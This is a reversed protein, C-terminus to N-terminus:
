IRLCTTSTVFRSFVGKALHKVPEFLKRVLESFVPDDSFMEPHEMATSAVDNGSKDPKPCFMQSKLNLGMPSFMFDKLMSAKTFNLEGLRGLDRLKAVIHGGPRVKLLVIALDIQSPNHIWGTFLGLFLKQFASFRCQPGFLICLDVDDLNSHLANYTDIGVSAGTMAEGGFLEPAEESSDGATGQLAAV